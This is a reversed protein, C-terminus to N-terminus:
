ELALSRINATHSMGCAGHFTTFASSLFRARSFQMWWRRLWILYLSRVGSFISSGGRCFRM